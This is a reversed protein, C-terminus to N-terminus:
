CRAGKKGKCNCVVIKEIEEVTGLCLWVNIEGVKDWTVTICDGIPLM